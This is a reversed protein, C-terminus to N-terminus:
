ILGRNKWDWKYMVDMFVGVNGKWRGFLRLFFKIIVVCLVFVYLRLEYGEWDVNLWFM